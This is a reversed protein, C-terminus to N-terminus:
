IKAQVHRSAESVQVHVPSSSYFKSEAVRDVYFIPELCCFVNQLGSLGRTNLKGECNFERNCNKAEFIHETTKSVKM